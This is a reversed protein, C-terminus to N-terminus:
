LEQKKSRSWQKVEYRNNRTYVVDVGYIQCVANVAAIYKRSQVSRRTRKGCWFEMTRRNCEEHLTKLKELTSNLDTGEAVTILSQTYEQDTM